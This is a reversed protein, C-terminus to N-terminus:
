KKLIEKIFNTIKEIKVDGWCLVRICEDLYGDKYCPACEINPNIVLSVENKYPGYNLPNTPGFIAVTPTNTASAIHLPLSDNTITIKANKIIASTEMIDTIGVLNVIESSILDLKRVREIDEKGGIVVIPINLPILKLLLKKWLVIPMLKKPMRTKPNYGGGPAIVIYKDKIGREKLMRDIKLVIKKPIRIELGLNDPKCGIKLVTELYEDAQHQRQNHESYIDLLCGEGMRNIGVLACRLAFRFLSVFLFSHHFLICLDYDRKRLIRILKILHPVNPKIFIKEDVIILNDINPNYSIIEFASKGVLYDIIAKPFKARLSRIAPTTLLVEGTAWVKVLLIKRINDIFLEKNKRMKVFFSAIRGLTWRSMEIISPM